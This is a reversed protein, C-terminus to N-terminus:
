SFYRSYIFFNESKFNKKIAIISIKIDLKPFKQGPKLNKKVIERNKELVCEPAKIYLLIEELNQEWEYVLQEKYYFPIRGNKEM